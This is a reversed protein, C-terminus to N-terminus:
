PGSRLGVNPCPPREQRGGSKRYDSIGEMWAELPITGVARIALTSSQPQADTEGSWADVSFAGVARAPGAVSAAATAAVAALTEVAAVAEVGAVEAASEFTVHWVSTGVPLRTATRTQSVAACCAARWAAARAVLSWSDRGAGPQARIPGPPQALPLQGRPAHGM